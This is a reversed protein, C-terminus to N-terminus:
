IRSAILSLAWVTITTWFLPYIGSIELQPFIIEILWVIGMNIVLSFLGFTIMRLPLTILNLIPKIFFNIFGLILGAYCLTRLSGTFEVGDILETALWIGLIAVIIQFILKRFRSTMLLFGIYDIIASGPFYKL